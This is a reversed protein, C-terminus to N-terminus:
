KKDHNNEQQNMIIEEVKKLINKKDEISFNKQIKLVIENNQSLPYEKYEIYNSEKKNEKIINFSQGYIQSKPTNILSNSKQNDINSLSRFSNNSRKEIDNLLSNLECKNESEKLRESSYNQSLSSILKDSMGEIQLKRVEILQKLHEETYFTNRGEKIGQEIINKTIYDRIRRSSVLKSVRSDTSNNIKKIEENLAETLQELNMKIM